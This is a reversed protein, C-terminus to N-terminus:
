VPRNLTEVEPVEAAPCPLSHDSNFMFIIRTQNSSFEFYQGNINKKKAGGGNDIRSM